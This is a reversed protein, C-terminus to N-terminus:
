STEVPPLPGLLWADVTARVDWICGQALGVRKVPGHKSLSLELQHNAISGLSPPTDVLARNAQSLYKVTHNLRAAVHSEVHTCLVLEYLEASLGIGAKRMKDIDDQVYRMYQALKGVSTADFSYLAKAELFAVPGDEDLIVLDRRKWERGLVHTALKKQLIWALRDRVNLELKGTLGLYVLETDDAQTAISGLSDLIVERFTM